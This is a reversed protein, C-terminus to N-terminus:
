LFEKARDVLVAANPQPVTCEPPANVPVDFLRVPIHFRAEDTGPSFMQTLVLPRAFPRPVTPFRRSPPGCPAAGRKRWPGSALTIRMVITRPAHWGNPPAAAACTFALDGILRTFSM